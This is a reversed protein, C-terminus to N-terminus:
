KPNNLIKNLAWSLKDENLEYLSISVAFGNAVANAINSPQDGFVPIGIIPVGYYVTEITSLLGGHTIFAM